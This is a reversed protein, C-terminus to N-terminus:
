KNDKSTYSKKSLNIHKMKMVDLCQILQSDPIYLLGIINLM